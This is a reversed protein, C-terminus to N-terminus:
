ASNPILEDTFNNQYAYNDEKKIIQEANYIDSAMNVRPNEKWSPNIYVLTQLTQLNTVSSVLKVDFPKNTKYFIFLKIM